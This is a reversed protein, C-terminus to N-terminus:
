KIVVHIRSVNIALMTGAAFLDTAPM